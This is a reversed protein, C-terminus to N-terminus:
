FFYAASIQWANNKSDYADKAGQWSIDATKGLAINYTVGIEFKSMIVFGAGVNASFNSKKLQYNSTDHSIGNQLSFETDGVNFGFQPGAALYLGMMQSLGLTYRLNIPVNISQQKVSTDEVKAERQDYVVAGDVALGTIPLAVKVAPGVYFGSRNSKSLVDNSLSMSTLNYGGKLGFQVQAKPPMAILLLAVVSIATLVKKM